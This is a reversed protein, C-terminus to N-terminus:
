NRVNRRASVVRHLCLIIVELHKSILTEALSDSSYIEAASISNAHLICQNMKTTSHETHRETKGLGFGWRIVLANDTFQMAEM